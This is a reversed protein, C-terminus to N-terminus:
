NSNSASVLYDNLMVMLNGWKQITWTEPLITTGMLLMWALYQQLHRCIQHLCIEVLCWSYCPLWWSSNCKNSYKVTKGKSKLGWGEKKDRKRKTQREAICKTCKNNTMMLLIDNFSPKDDNNRGRKNQRRSIPTLVPGRKFLLNSGYASMFWLFLFLHDSVGPRPSLMSTGNGRIARIAVWTGTVVAGWRRFRCCSTDWWHCEQELWTRCSSIMSLLMM